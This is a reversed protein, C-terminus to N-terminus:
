ITRNSNKYFFRNNNKGKVKTIFEDVQKLNM